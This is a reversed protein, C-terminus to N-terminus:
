KGPEKPADITTKQEVVTGAATTTTTSDEFLFRKKIGEIYRWLSTGGGAVGAWLAVRLDLQGTVAVLALSTSAGNLFGDLFFVVVGGLMKKTDSTM